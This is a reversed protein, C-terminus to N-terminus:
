DSARVTPKIKKSKIVFTGPPRGRVAKTSYKSKGKGPARKKWSNNSYDTAPSKAANGPKTGDAYHVNKPQYHSTPPDSKGIFANFGGHKSDKSYSKYPISKKSYDNQRVIANTRNRGNFGRRNKDRSDYTNNSYNNRLEVRDKQNYNERRDYEYKPRFSLNTNRASNRSDARNQKIRRSTRDSSNQKKEHHDAGDEIYLRDKIRKFIDEVRWGRTAPHAVMEPGDTLLADLITQKFISFQRFDNKVKDMQSEMTLTGGNNVYDSVATNFRNQYNTVDLLSPSRLTNKEYKVHFHNLLFFDSKYNCMSEIKLWLQRIITIGRCWETRFERPISNYLLNFLIGHELKEREHTKDQISKLSLRIKVEAPDGRMSPTRGEPSVTKNINIWDILGNVTIVDLVRQRWDIFQDPKLQEITLNGSTVLIPDQRFSSQPKRNKGSTSSRTSGRAKPHRLDKSKFNKRFKELAM